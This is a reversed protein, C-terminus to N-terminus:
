APTPWPKQQRMAAALRYVKERGPHRTWRLNDVLTKEDANLHLRHASPATLDDHLCRLQRMLSKPLDHNELQTIISHLQTANHM